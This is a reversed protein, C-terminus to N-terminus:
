SRSRKREHEQLGLIASSAAATMAALACGTWCGVQIKKRHTAWLRLRRRARRRSPFM